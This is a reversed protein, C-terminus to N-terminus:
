QHPYFTTTGDGVSVDGTTVTIAWAASSSQANTATTSPILKATKLLDLTPTATPNDVLYAQAAHGITAATAYDAQKKSSTTFGSLKPIAIAALIGLIAIVVILEILTFGKRKKKKIVDMKMLSIEM